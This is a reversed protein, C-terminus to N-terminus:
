TPSAAYSVLTIIPKLKIHAPRDSRKCLQSLTAAILRGACCPGGLKNRACSGSYHVVDLLLVQEGVGANAFRHPRQCQQEDGGCRQLRRRLLAPM